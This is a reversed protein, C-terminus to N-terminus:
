RPMISVSAEPSTRSSNRRPISLRNEEMQSQIHEIASMSDERRGAGVGPMASAMDSRGLGEEFGAQPGDRAVKM